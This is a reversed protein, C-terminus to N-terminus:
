CAIFSKLGYDREMCYDCVAILDNFMPSLHEYPTKLVLSVQKIDKGIGMSDLVHNISLESPFARLDMASKFRNGEETKISIIPHVQKFDGGQATETYNNFIDFSAAIEFSSDKFYVKDEVIKNLEIGQLNAYLYTFDKTGVFRFCNFAPIPFGEKTALIGLLEQCLSKLLNPQYIITSKELRRLCLIFDFYLEHKDFYGIFREPYQNVLNAFISFDNKLKPMAGDLHITAGTKKDVPILHYSVSM